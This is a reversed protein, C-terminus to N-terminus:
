SPHPCHCVHYTLRRQCCLCLVSRLTYITKFTHDYDSSESIVKKDKSSPSGESLVKPVPRVEVDLGVTKNLCNRSM